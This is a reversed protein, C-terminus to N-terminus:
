FFDERFKVRGVPGKQPTLFVELNTLNTAPLSTVM